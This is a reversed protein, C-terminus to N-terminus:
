EEESSEPVLNVYINGLSQGPFDSFVDLPLEEAYVIQADKLSTHYSGSLAFYLNKGLLTGPPIALFFILLSLAPAPILTIKEILRQFFSYKQGERAIRELVGGSIDPFDKDVPLRGLLNWTLRLEEEEKRCLSCSSLHQEIEKAKEDELQHNLFAILNKRVKKCPHKM